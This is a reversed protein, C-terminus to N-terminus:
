LYRQVDCIWDGFFIQDKLVAELVPGFLDTMVKHIAEFSPEKRKSSRLYGKFRAQLAKSTLSREYQEKAEQTLVMARRKLEEELFISMYKGNLNRGAAYSYITELAAMDPYLEMLSFYDVFLESLEAEPYFCPLTLTKDNEYILKLPFTVIQAKREEQCKIHLTVPVRIRDFAAELLVCFGENEERIQFRTDPFCGQLFQMLWPEELEPNLICLYLDQFCGTKYARLGLQSTRKVLLKEESPERFFCELVWEGACAALLNQYPIKLKRSKEQILRMSLKQQM